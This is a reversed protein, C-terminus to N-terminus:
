RSVDKRPDRKVELVRLGELRLPAEALGAVDSM